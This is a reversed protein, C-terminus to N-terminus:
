ENIGKRAFMRQASGSNVYNYMVIGSSTGVNLSRVSGHPPITVIKWCRELVSDSLGRQEEGFLMVPRYPWDFDHLDVMPYKINCEIAIPVYGGESAKSFFDNEDLCHILPTYHHTGVAGRRDWGKKGGIYYVREFGFFNANRLVTSLNFDGNVHLMAAAVPYTNSSVHEKIEEVTKSKLHDLVNM